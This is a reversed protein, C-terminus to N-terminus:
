EGEGLIRFEEDAIRQIYFSLPVDVQQFEESREKVFLREECWATFCSSHDAPELNLHRAIASSITRGFRRGFRSRADPDRMVCLRLLDAEREKMEERLREQNKKFEEGNLFWGEPTEHFGVKARLVSDVISPFARIKEAIKAFPLPQKGRLFVEGLTAMLDFYEKSDASLRPIAEGMWSTWPIAAAAALSLRAFHSNAPPFECDASRRILPFASSIMPLRAPMSKLADPPRRSLNGECGAWTSLFWADPNDPVLKRAHEGLTGILKYDPKRQAALAYAAILLLMPDHKEGSRLKALVEDSVVVAGRKLGAIAAELEHHDSVDQAAFGRGRPVFRVLMEGWNPKEDLVVFIQTAWDKYAGIALHPSQPLLRQTLVYDGPPVALRLALTGHKQDLWADGPAAAVLRGSISTLDFAASTEDFERRGHPTRVFIFIESTAAGLLHPAGSERAPRASCDIATAAQAAIHKDDPSLPAVCRPKLRIDELALPRGAEVCFIREHSDGPVSAHLIYVGPEVEQTLVGIDKRVLLFTSDLLVLETTKPSAAVKVSTRPPPM